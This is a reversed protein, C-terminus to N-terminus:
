RRRLGRKSRNSEKSREHTSYVGAGVAAATWPSLSHMWRGLGYSWEAQHPHDEIWKSEFERQPKTSNWQENALSYNLRNTSASIEQASASRLSALAEIRRTAADMKLIGTQGKVYDTNADQFNRASNNLGITSHRLATQNDLNGSDLLFQLASQIGSQVGAGVNEGLSPMPATPTTAGQGGTASLIPNLGAARLDTVERQHATNSMREMWDRNDRAIREQIEAAKRAGFGSFIGGALNSSAGLISGFNSGLFNGVNQLWHSSGGSSSVGSGLTLTGNNSGLNTFSNSGSISNFLGKASSKGSFLNGITPAVKGVAKGISPLIQSWAVM